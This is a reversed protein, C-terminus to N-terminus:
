NGPFCKRYERPVVNKKIFKDGSGCVVCQNLKVQTYYQGVEGHARGSPEFHLKVTFPDDMVLEALGKNVYWEAKKRDCTCLTEGDPAQLYCNQYLPEKRTIVGSLKPNISPFHQAASEHGNTKKTNKSELLVNNNNNNNKSSLERYKKDILEEPVNHVFYNYQTKKKYSLKIFIVLRQWATQRQHVQTQMGRYILASSIADYSAYTIQQDTLEDTSWDGCRIEQFKDLKIGLYHISLAALSKHNPLSNYDAYSRLDLTGFVRCGYDKTLKRGDDFTAVGVKLICNNSLM